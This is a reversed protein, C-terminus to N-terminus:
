RRHRAKSISAPSITRWLRASRRPMPWPRGRQPRSRLRGARCSALTLAGAGLVAAPGVADGNGSMDNEGSVRAPDADLLRRVLAPEAITNLTALIKRAVDASSRRPPATTSSRRRGAGADDAGAEIRDCLRAAARLDARGQAHDQAQGPERRFADSLEPDVGATVISRWRAQRARGQAGGRHLGPHAARRAGAFLRDCLGRQIEGGRGIASLRTSASAREVEVGPLPHQHHRCAARRGQERLALAAEIATHGRGGCPYAKLSYGLTM